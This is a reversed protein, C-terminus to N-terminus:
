WRHNRMEDSWRRLFAFMNEEGLSAAQLLVFSMGVMAESLGETSPVFFRLNRPPAHM